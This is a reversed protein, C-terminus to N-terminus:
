NEKKGRETRREESKGEERGGKGREGERKNGRREGREKWDELSDSQLQKLFSGLPGRTGESM